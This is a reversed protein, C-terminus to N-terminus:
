RCTKLIIQLSDGLNMSSFSATRGLSMALRRLTLLEDAVPASQERASLPKIVITGMLVRALIAFITNGSGKSFNFLKSASLDIQLTHSATLLQGSPIIVRFIALFYIKKRMM